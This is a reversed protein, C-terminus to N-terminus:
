DKARPGSRHKERFKPKHHCLISSRGKQIDPGPHPDERQGCEVWPKKIKNATVSAFARPDNYAAIWTLCESLRRISHDKWPAGRPRCNIVLMEQPTNGFLGRVGALAEGREIVVLHESQSPNPPVDFNPAQNFAFSDVADDGLAIDAAIAGGLSHGTLKIPIDHHGDSDLAARELRYLEKGREKHKGGFNGSFWDSISSETGRFAIIREVRQGNEMRDFVSYAFGSRDNDSNRVLVIGQPLSAFKTEDDYADNSLQGYEWTRVAFERTFGCWGGPDRLCPSRAQTLDTACASLLAAAALVSLSKFLGIMM